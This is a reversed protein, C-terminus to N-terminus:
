KEFWGAWIIGEFYGSQVKYYDESIKEIITVTNNVVHGVKKAGRVDDPRDFLAIEGSIQPPIRQVGVYNKIKPNNTAPTTPNYKQNATTVNKTITNVTQYLWDIIQNTISNSSYDYSQGNINNNIAEYFSNLIKRKDEDSIQYNNVNSTITNINSQVLNFNNTYAQDKILAAQGLISIDLAQPDRYQYSGSNSQNVDYYEWRNYYSNM